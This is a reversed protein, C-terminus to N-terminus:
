AVSPHASDAATLKGVRNSANCEEISVTNELPELGQHLFFERAAGDAEAMMVGGVHGRAM